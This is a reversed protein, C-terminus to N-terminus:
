NIGTPEDEWEGNGARVRRRREILKDRDRREFTELIIEGSLADVVFVHKTESEHDIVPEPRVIEAIVTSDLWDIPLPL